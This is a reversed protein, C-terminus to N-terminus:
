NHRTKCSGCDGGGTCKRTAPAAKAAQKENLRTWEKMFQETPEVEFEVSYFEYGCNPCIGHKYTEQHKSNRVGIDAEVKSTCKPCPIM